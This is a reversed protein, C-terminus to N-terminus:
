QFDTENKVTSGRFTSFIRETGASSATGVVFKRAFVYMEKSICPRVSQWWAPASLKEFYPDEFYCEQFYDTKGLYKMVCPMAAPHKEHIFKLASDPEKPSVKEGRYHPDILYIM